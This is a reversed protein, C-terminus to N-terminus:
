PGSRYKIPSPRQQFGNRFAIACIASRSLGVRQSVLRASLGDVDWLQRACEIVEKPHHPKCRNTNGRAADSTTGM